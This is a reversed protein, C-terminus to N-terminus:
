RDKKEYKLTFEENLSQYNGDVLTNEIKFYIKSKIIGDIELVKLALEPTIRFLHSYIIRNEGEKSELKISVLDSTILAALDYKKGLHEVDITLIDGNIILTNLDYSLSFVLRDIINLKQIVSSSVKNFDLKEM